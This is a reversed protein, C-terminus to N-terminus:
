LSQYNPGSGGEPTTWTIQDAYPEKIDCAKCHVCNSANIQLRSGGAGDTVMEYVNAPCFNTCPNGYEKACRTACINVDTVLLHVPQNEDHATTAFFVSAVRDRPPLEREGWHRDPSAYEDLRRLASHDAHNALTWPLAGGTVTELGANALGAWLGRRFGPRINRVKHLERGGTSARWRADFGASSRKEIYHEAATMGSRIAQHIGKIKPTNLTGGADGALIAGPMELQPMSQYGGEIVTRAGGSVIEGGALLSKIAPHNKFQQFAEFPKFRPDEYDLGVVFGVYVRDSDLHYLFSGGYTANDLPWGLSHQILGAETRGAPLQWLEKLGLGYTQPSKGQDLSFRRILQKSISGRCGEALITLKAHIDPGPVFNAGPERNKELGMDGIQVGIVQGGAGILPAAGAFGPFVDVGLREAEQGLLPTLQGLSLIFNGHNHMQPPTPLRFRRRRTMFWFEDRAAPVCIAPKNDRWQPWLSDLPGPEMVAGSLSHAGLSAGKELVCVSIDPQLQKLRIAASLGAPGAGVVAVEYEMVDRQIESM